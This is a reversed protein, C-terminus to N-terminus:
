TGIAGSGVEFPTGAVFRGHPWAGTYCIPGYFGELLDGTTTIAKGTGFGDATIPGVVLWSPLEAQQDMVPLLDLVDQWTHPANTGVISAGSPKDTTSKFDVRHPGDRDSHGSITCAFGDFTIGLTGALQFPTARPGDRRLAELLATEVAPRDASTAFRAPHGAEDETLRGGADVTLGSETWQALDPDTLSLAALEDWLQQGQGGQLRTPNRILLERVLDAGAAAHDTELRDALDAPVPADDTADLPVISIPVETALVAEVASPDAFANWELQDAETHGDVLVNGPAEVTGLMAHITAIRDALGPDAAFADELNTLPGLTVITPASPSDAVAARIIEVADRPVGTEAQPTIDLGFLAEATARRENPFSHGDKGPDQRGCGFPTASADLEDLIYRILLRGSQCRVLGTGAISIARVDLKPDRLLIAIAAIDSLDLDADIVIPIRTTPPEGTVVPASSDSSGCASSLLAVVVGLVGVPLARLGSM